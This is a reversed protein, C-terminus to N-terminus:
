DSVSEENGEETIKRLAPTVVSIVDCMADALKGAFSDDLDESYHFSFMEDNRSSGHMDRFQWHPKGLSRLTGEVDEFPMSLFMLGVDAKKKGDEGENYLNIAYTFTWNGWEPENYWFHFHRRNFKGYRGGDGAWWSSKNPRIKVPLKELVLVKTKKLFQSVEDNRHRNKTSQGTDFVSEGVGITYPETGPIPIITNTHLYLQGSKEAQYPTLKICTFLDPVKENLWLM